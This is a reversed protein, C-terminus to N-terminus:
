PLLSNVFYSEADDLFRFTKLIDRKEQLKSYKKTSPAVFLPDFDSHTTTNNMTSTPTTASPTPTTPQQQQQQM